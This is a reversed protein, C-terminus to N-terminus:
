CWGGANRPGMVAKSESAPYQPVISFPLGMEFLKGEEM